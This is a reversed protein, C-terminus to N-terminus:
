CFAALAHAPRMAPKEFMIPKRKPKTSKGLIMGHSALVWNLASQMKALMIRTDVAATEIM